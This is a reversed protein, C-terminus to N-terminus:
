ILQGCQAFNYFFTLDVVCRTLWIVRMKDGFMAFDYFEDLSNFCTRLQTGDRDNTRFFYKRGSKDIKFGFMAMKDQILDTGSFAIVNQM